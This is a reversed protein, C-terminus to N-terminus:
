KVVKMKLLTGGATGQNALNTTKSEEPLNNIEQVSDANKIDSQAKRLKPNLSINTRAKDDEMRASQYKDM